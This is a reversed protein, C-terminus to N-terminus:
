QVHVNFKELKHPRLLCHFKNTLGKSQFICKHVILKGKVFDFFLDINPTKQEFRQTFIHRKGLLIFYNFILTRKDEPNYGYLISLEDVLHCDGSQHNWWLPCSKIFCIVNNMKQIVPAQYVVGITLFVRKNTDPLSRPYPPFLCPRPGLFSTRAVQLATM